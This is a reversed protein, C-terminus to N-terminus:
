EVDLTPDGQKQAAQERQDRKERRVAMDMKGEESGQNRRKNAYSSRSTCLRASGPAAQPIM